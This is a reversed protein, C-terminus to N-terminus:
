AAATHGSDVSRLFATALGAVEDPRELMVFHGADAISEYRAHPLGDALAASFRPPALHDNAGAIVVTPLSIGGLLPRADFHHCAFFDNFATPPPVALMAALVKRRLAAPASHFGNDVVFTAARESHDFWGGLLAETVRMRAGAGMLLLGRLSPPSELALALAVLAGMSHGAVVVGPLALADLFAHVATAYHTIARRGPPDSRGHGPLDLALVRMDPLRRLSGPWVLHSGAAGHVLLLATGQAERQHDAYFLRRSGPRTSALNVYPMLQM